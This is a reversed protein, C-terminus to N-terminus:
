TPVVKRAMALAIVLPRVVTGSFDSDILACLEGILAERAGPAMIQLNSFSRLLDAYTATTYTQDWRYLRLTPEVLSPHRRFQELEPPSVEDPLPAVEDTSETNEYRRYIPASRDFYGGDVDSRVQVTSMTALVGSPRLLGLSKDVRVAPDIWHFATAAVVLDFSSAPLQVNEFSGDLVTLPYERGLHQRLFEALRPGYEVATVRAGADLLSRTAKGTGPGIELVDLGGAVLGDAVLGDAVVRAAPDVEGDAVLGDAVVRAAPDVEGDAVLGDAVLGDAVLRAAPDVERGDQWFGFLDSFAQAPYSPRARDYIEAVGDFSLRREVPTEEGRLDV